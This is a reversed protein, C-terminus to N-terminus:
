WSGQQVKGEAQKEPHLNPDNDAWPARELRQGEFGLRKAVIRYSFEVNPDGGRLHVEFQTSTRNTVYVEANGYVQIFVHYPEKLNVTQAFIPEIPIVALGNQLKGFGYDAFWVETAEESYLLRSGDATRVVAAKAGSAVTLGTKAAPVSIFVGHGVASRFQGAWADAHSSWGFVGFGGVTKSVGLVGNRGAFFGGPKWYAAPLDGTGYGTQVGVVGFGDTSGTYGTVGYKDGSGYLGYGGGSNYFYGGYGGPSTSAGIVAYNTGSTATAYGRLARGSTNTNEAHLIPGALSDSIVAGPRLSFAYPVPYIAQRPTMEADTGVRIGLWLQRGNIDSSDCFDMYASFLGDTVAVMDTDECMVTGGSSADYLRFRISYNGTLPNGSADALRGQIPIANVVGAAEVEGEPGVEEEPEQAQSLGVSGALALLLGIFLVCILFWKAKVKKKKRIFQLSHRRAALPGYWEGYPSNSCLRACFSGSYEKSFVRM